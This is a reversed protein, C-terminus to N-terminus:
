SLFFRNILDQWNAYGNRECIARCVSNTNLVDYMIHKDFCSVGADMNETNINGSKHRQNLEDILAEIEKNKLNGVKKCMKRFFALTAWEDYVRKDCEKSIREIREEHKIERAIRKMTKYESM